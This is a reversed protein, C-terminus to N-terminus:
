EHQELLHHAAIDHRIFRRNGAEPLDVGVLRM